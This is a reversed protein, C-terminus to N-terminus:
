RAANVTLATLDKVAGLTDLRMIADALKKCAAEGIVDKGLATFKVGIEEATMPDRPDGKPVDVRKSFSKGDTTTITVQSPQFKPFLSEFEDNAVVKIKDM